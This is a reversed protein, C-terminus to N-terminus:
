HRDFVLDDFLMTSDTSPGYTDMGFQVLQQTFVGAEAADFDVPATGISKGDLLVEATWSGSKSDLVLALRAWRGTPLKTSLSTAQTPSSSATFLEPSGNEVRIGLLYSPTLHFTLVYVLGTATAKTIKFSGSIEVHTATPDFDFTKQITAADVGRDVVPGVHASFANPPSLADHAISVDGATVWDGLGGTGDFDDCFDPIPDMGACGKSAAAEPAVDVPADQATSSDPTDADAPVAVITTSSSCGGVASAACLAVITLIM